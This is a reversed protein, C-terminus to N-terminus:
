WPSSGCTPGTRCPSSSTLLTLVPDTSSVHLGQDGWQPLSWYDGGRLSITSTLFSAQVVVTAWSQTEMTGTTGVLVSLLRGDKAISNQGGDETFHSTPGPSSDTVPRTQIAKKQSIMHLDGLLITICYGEM